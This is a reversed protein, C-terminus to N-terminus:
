RWPPARLDHLTELHYDPSTQPKKGSGDPVWAARLGAAHAGPIDAVTSNGVHVARSPDTDLDALARHFPEPSPKAPADYGAHVVTEFTETLGLSDLKPTQMDPSGNTVVGLRHDAGLEAIAERAGPLFRVDRHDREAAYARAVAVGTQPDHGTDDAIAAFCRERVTAVSDAGESHSEFRDYYEQVDFFPDVGVEEFAFALLETGDRRYECITDDIDFLVADVPGATM